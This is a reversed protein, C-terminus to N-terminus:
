LVTNSRFKWRKFSIELQWAGVTNSWSKDTMEPTTAVLSPVSFGEIERYNPLHEMQLQGGNLVIDPKDESRISNIFQELRYSVTYTKKAKDSRVLIDTDNVKLKGIKEGLFFMDDRISEIVLGISKEFDNTLTHDKEGTIFYTKMGDLYPYMNIFHSLQSQRDKLFLSNYYQAKQTKGNTPYLGEFLNGCIIVNRYGEKYSTQILDQLITPQEYISGMRLDSIVLVKFPENDKTEINIENQKLDEVKSYNLYLNGERQSQALPYGEDKLEEILKSLEFISIKTEKALDELLIEQTGSYRIEELIARKKKDLKEIGTM